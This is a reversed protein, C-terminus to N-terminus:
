AADLAHERARRRLALWGWATLAGLLALPVLVAAAILAVGAAVTLVRLADHAAHGVTLGGGSKAGGGIPVPVGGGAQITLQLQSYAVRHQLSRLSAEESSISAEADHIRATLSDIQAQTVAYALQKLLASRLARADALARQHAQYSGTVDQSSDTRSGVDAYRLTSLRALLPELNQSPVSVQVQAYGGGAAATVTSRQVIGSESGIAEFSEQAVQELHTPHTDLQLQSSAITKRGPANLPQPGPTTAPAASLGGFAPSAASKAPASTAAAHTRTPARPAAPAPSSSSSQALSSHGHAAGAAIRNGSSAGGGSGAALVAVVLVLSAALAGATTQWGRPVAALARAWRRRASGAAPERVGLRPARRPEFRTLAREDLAAAFEPAPAQRDDRLWLALRALDAHGAGVPEGALARDIAELAPSVEPDDPLQEPARM